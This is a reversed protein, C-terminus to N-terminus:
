DGDIGRKKKYFGLRERTGPREGGGSPETKGELKRDVFSCSQVPAM